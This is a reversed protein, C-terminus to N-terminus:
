SERERREAREERRLLARFLWGEHVDVFVHLLIGPWLSGSVVYLAGFLLGAVAVKAAQRPGQYLHAGGFAAAAAATAAWAAADDPRPPALDRGVLSCGYGILFGRYVVEECLGATFSLAVWRRGEGAERPLFPAADRAEALARARRAADAAVWPGRLV